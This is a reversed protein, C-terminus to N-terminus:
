NSYQICFCSLRSSNLRLERPAYHTCTGCLYKQRTRKEVDLVGMKRERPTPQIAPLSKFFLPSIGQRGSVCASEIRRNKTHHYIVSPSDHVARRFEFISSPMFVLYTGCMRWEIQPSKKKLNSNNNNNSNHPTTCRSAATNGRQIQHHAERAFWQVTSVSAASSSNNGVGRAKASRNRDYHKLGGASWVTGM